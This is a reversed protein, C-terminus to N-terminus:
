RVRAPRRATPRVCMERLLDMSSIVGAPRGDREVFVRHIKRDWMRRAVVRLPLDAPVTIIKSTMIESVPTEALPNRESEEWGEFEGAETTRPYAYRYFGGEPREAGALYAVIDFLSVVGVPRGGPDMVLAGSIGHENLFAAAEALSADEEVTLVPSRMADEATAEVWPKV